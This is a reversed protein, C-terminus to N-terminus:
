FFIMAYIIAALGPGLRAGADSGWFADETWACADGCVVSFSRRWKTSCTMTGGINHYKIICETPPDGLTCYVDNKMQHDICSEESTINMSECQLPPVRGAVPKINCAVTQESDEPGCVCQKHENPATNPFEVQCESYTKLESGDCPGWSRECEPVDDGILGLQRCLRNCDRENLVHWPQDDHWPQCQQVAEEKQGDVADVPRGDELILEVSSARLGLVTVAAAAGALAAAAVVLALLRTRRRSTPAAETADSEISGYMM